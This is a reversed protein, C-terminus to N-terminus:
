FRFPAARLVADAATVAEPTDISLWRGHTVFGGVPVDAALLRPYTVRIISFAGGDELWDFIAPSFVHM